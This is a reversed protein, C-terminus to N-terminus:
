RGMDRLAQRLSPFKPEIMRLIEHLEENEGHTMFFETARTAAAGAEPTLGRLCKRLPLSIEDDVFSYLMTALLMAQKAEVSHEILSYVSQYPTRDPSHIRRIRPNDLADEVSEKLGADTGGAWQYLRLLVRMSGKRFEDPTMGEVVMRELEHKLADRVFAQDAQQLILSLM